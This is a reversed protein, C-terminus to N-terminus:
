AAILQTSHQARPPFAVRSVELQDLYLEIRTEIVGFLRRMIDVVRWDVM